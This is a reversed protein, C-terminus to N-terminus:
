NNNKNEAVESIRGLYKDIALISINLYDEIQDRPDDGAIVANVLVIIEGADDIFMKCAFNEPDANFSNILQYLEVPVTNFHVMRSLALTLAQNAPNYHIFVVPAVQHHPLRTKFRIMNADNDNLEYPVGHSELLGCFDAVVKNMVKMDDM